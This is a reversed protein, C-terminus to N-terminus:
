MQYKPTIGQQAKPVLTCTICKHSKWDACSHKQNIQVIYYVLLHGDTFNTKDYTM